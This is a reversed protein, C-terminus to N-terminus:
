GVGLAKLVDETIDIQTPYKLFTRERIKMIAEGSGSAEFAEATPAFRFVLDISEKDSVTDVAAVLERYAAEFQEANLKEGEAAIGERFMRYEQQLKQFAQQGEIPPQGGQPIPFKDQIEKARKEFDAEGKELKDKVENRKDLYSPADLLKKMVRDVDVAAVSWVRSTGRDGWAIRGDKALVRLPDKGAETNLLVADAPGLDALFSGAAVAVPALPARLAVLLAVASLALSGVVIM